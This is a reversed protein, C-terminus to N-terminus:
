TELTDGREHRAVDMGELLDPLQRVFASRALVRDAGAARAAQLSESDVHSGFAVIRVRATEPDAKLEAIAAIPDGTRADLDVLVLGPGKSRVASALDAARPIILASVGASSAASRIRSAFLLDPVVAIVAVSGEAGTRHEGGASYSVM